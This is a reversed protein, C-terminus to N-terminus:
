QIIYILYKFPSLTFDRELLMLAATIVTVGILTNEIGFIKQFAVIFLIIFVFLATKSVLLKKNM